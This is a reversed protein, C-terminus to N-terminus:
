RSDRYFPYKDLKKRTNSDVPRFSDPQEHFLPYKDVEKQLNSDLPQPTDFHMYKSRYYVDLKEDINIAMLSSHSSYPTEPRFSLKIDAKQLGNGSDFGQFIPITVDTVAYMDGPKLIYKLTDINVAYRILYEHARNFYIFTNKKTGSIDEKPLMDTIVSYDSDRIARVIEKSNSLIREKDSKCSSLLLGNILLIILM